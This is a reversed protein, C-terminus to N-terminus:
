ALVSVTAYTLPGLIDYTTNKMSSTDDGDDSIPLTVQTPPEKLALTLTDAVCSTAPM